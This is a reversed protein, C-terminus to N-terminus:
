GAPRRDFVLGSLSTRPQILQSYYGWTALQFPGRHSEAVLVSKGLDFTSLRKKKQQFNFKELFKVNFNFYYLKEIIDIFFSCKM